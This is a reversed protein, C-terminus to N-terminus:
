FLTLPSLFNKDICWKLTFLLFPDAPNLTSQYCACKVHTQKVQTQSLKKSVQFFICSPNLNSATLDKFIQCLDKHEKLEGKLTDCHSLVCARPESQRIDSVTSQHRYVLPKLLPATEISIPILSSTSEKQNDEMRIPVIAVM